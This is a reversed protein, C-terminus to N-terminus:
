LGVAMGAGDDAVDKLAGNAHLYVIRGGGRGARDRGVVGAFAEVFGRVAAMEEGGVGALGLWYDEEGGEHAVM